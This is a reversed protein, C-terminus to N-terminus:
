PMLLIVTRFTIAPFYAQIPLPYHTAPLYPPRDCVQAQHRATASRSSGNSSNRYLVAKPRWALSFSLTTPRSSGTSRPRKLTTASMTTITSATSDHCDDGGADVHTFLAALVWPARRDDAHTAQGAASLKTQHPIKAPILGAITDVPLSGAARYASRCEYRRQRHEHTQHGTDGHRAAFRVTLRGPQPQASRYLREGFIPTKGVAM